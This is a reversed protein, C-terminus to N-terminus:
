AAEYVYNMAIVDSAALTFPTSANTFGITLYTSAANYLDNVVTTTSAYRIPGFVQTGTSADFYFVTGQVGDQATGTIPKTVSMQTGTFASTSGCSILVFVYILKQVRVYRATVTGNGLSFNTYTPTFSLSEGIGNMQAATLVQGATFPFPNAM